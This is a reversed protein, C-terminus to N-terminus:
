RDLTRVWAALGRRWRPADTAIRHVPVGARHAIAEFEGVSREYDDPGADSADTGRAARRALRARATAAHCVVEVIAVRIGRSHAFAIAADRHRQKAHTADLIAVRGGDLVAAARELLAEYVADKATETYLGAAAGRRDREDLGARRKRM